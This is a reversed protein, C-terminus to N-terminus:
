KESPIFRSQPGEAGNFKLYALFLLSCITSNNFFAQAKIRQWLKADSMKGSTAGTTQKGHSTSGAGGVTDSSAIHKCRSRWGWMSLTISAVPSKPNYLDSLSDTWKGIHAYLGMKRRTLLDLFYMVQPFILGQDLLPTCQCKGGFWHNTPFGLLQWWGMTDINNPWPDQKPSGSTNWPKRFLYYM